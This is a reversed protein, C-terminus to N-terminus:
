DESENPVGEVISETYKREIRNEMVQILPSLVNMVLVTFAIGAPSTGAGVLFFAVCGATIGYFVRGRNMMPVTGRWQLIFLAGFLTGSSLYALIVDGQLFPGACLFPAVVRVLLGYVAMFLCPILVPYVDFAFLVISSILTLFNFRFAPIVSKSDWFLSVYGDPISVGLVSFVKANLFNTIRADLPVMPFAGNKILSLAVNRSQLDEATISIQPFYDAGVIWCVAVTAAVPNVWSRAFGGLVLKNVLLVCLSVFFVAVLPYTSPLLLGISIGVMLDLMWVFSDKSRADADAFESLFAASLSACIVFISPFSGTVFLMVVQLVLAAVIFYTETTVSPRLYRFPGLEVREFGRSKRATKKSFGSFLSM